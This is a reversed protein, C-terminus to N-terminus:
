LKIPKRFDDLLCLLAVGLNAFVLNFYNGSGEEMGQGLFSWFQLSEFHGFDWSHLDGSLGLDAFHGFGSDVVLGQDRTGGFVCLRWVHEEQDKPM